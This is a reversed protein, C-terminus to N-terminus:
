RKIQRRRRVVLGTAALGALMLAYTQPEPVPAFSLGVVMDDYDADGRYGDNFGLILDFSKPTGDVKATFVECLTAVGCPSNGQGVATGLVAYSAYDSVKGGNLVSSGSTTDKFLFNLVQAGGTLPIDLTSGVAAANSLTQAGLNFSMVDLDGAEKGLFTVTLTGPGIAQIQSNLWGANVAGTAALPAGDYGSFSINTGPASTWNLDAHSASALVALATALLPKRM